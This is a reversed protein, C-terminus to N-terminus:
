HMAHRGGAVTKIARRRLITSLVKTHEYYSHLYSFFVLDWDRDLPIEVEKENYIEVNAYDPCLGAILEPAASQMVSREKIRLRAPHCYTAIVAIRMTRSQPSSSRRTILHYSGSRQELRYNPATQSNDVIDRYRRLCTEYAPRKQVPSRLGILRQRFLNNWD